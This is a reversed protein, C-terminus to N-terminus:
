RDNKRTIRLCALWEGAELGTICGLTIIWWHLDQYSGRIQAFVMIGATVLMPIFVAPRALRKWLGFDDTTTPQKYRHQRGNIEVLFNFGTLFAGVLIPLAIISYAFENIDHYAFAHTAIALYSISWFITRARSLQCANTTLM